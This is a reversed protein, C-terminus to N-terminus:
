LKQARVKRYLEKEWETVLEITKQDGPPNVQSGYIGAMGGVPDIFWMLNPYGGWFVTGKKREAVDELLMMGGLGWDCKTGLPAGGFTQNVEPLKLMEMLAARSADTLQPKFMEEVTAMKLLKGDGTLISHLLKHYDLPAGYGGAGGSCTEANSNWLEKGEHHVMKGNPNAATGFMNAGGERDSMDTMRAMLDPKTRPFFSFNKVGLPGWINCQLYSELSTNTVREVMWGAWDIGVGYEWSEGPAFLLPYFFAEKLDNQIYLDPTKKQWKRYRAMVPNFFDYTLGSSHTLLHRLTIAKTNEVLVPTDNGNGDEEFGTLIKLGKLEPLIGTVDEDLKLLGREVCQMAAVTTLLKTCSALWMVADLKMPDPNSPDKLSRYGFAKEYHFRGEKDGAVLVAGPIERNKVAEQMRQEFSQASM